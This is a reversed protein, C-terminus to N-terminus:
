SWLFCIYYLRSLFVTTCWYVGSLSFHSESFLSASSLFCSCHSFLVTPRHLQSGSCSPLFSDLSDSARLELSSPFNLYRTYLCSFNMSGEVHLTIPYAWLKIPWWSHQPSLTKLGLAVWWPSPTLPSLCWLPLASLWVYEGPLSSTFTPPTLLEHFIPWQSPESPVPTPALRSLRLKVGTGVHYVLLVSEGLDDEPWQMHATPHM